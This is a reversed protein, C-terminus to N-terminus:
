KDLDGTSLGCVSGPPCYATASHSSITGTTFVSAFVEGSWNPSQSSQPGGVTSSRVTQSDITHSWYHNPTTHSTISVTKGIGADVYKGWVEDALAPVAIFLSSSVVLAGVLGTLRKKNSM